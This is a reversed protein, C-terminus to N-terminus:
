IYRHILPSNKMRIEGYKDVLFRDFYILEEPTAMSNESDGIPNFKSTLEQDLAKVRISLLDNIEVRYPRQMKQFSILNDVQNNENEALYTLRETSIRSM